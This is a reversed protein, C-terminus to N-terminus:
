FLFSPASSSLFPFSLYISFYISLCACLFVCLSLYVCLYISVCIFVYKSLNVCLYISVCISLCASLYVCLYISVFFSQCLFLYVFLYMSVYFRLNYVFSLLSRNYCSVDLYWTVDHLCALLFGCLLWLSSAAAGVNLSFSYLNFSGNFRESSMSTINYLVGQASTM